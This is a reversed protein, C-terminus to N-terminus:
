TNSLTGQWRRQAQEMAGGVDITGVISGDKPIQIVTISPAQHSFVYIRETLPELLIGDPRGKVDITKIKQLTQTDFMGVPNSSGFGHHSKGDVAIGHGGINTSLALWSTTTWILDVFTQGGRPM